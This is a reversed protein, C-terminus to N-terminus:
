EQYGQRWWESLDDTMSDTLSRQKKYHNLRELWAMFFKVREERNKCSWNANLKRTIPRTWAMSDFSDILSKVIPFVKLKLGFVHLNKDPLERRVLSVTQHILHDNLEVCLNGIAFFEYEKLFGYERYLRICRLVSEPEKNWGQISLLWNVYDFKETYIIANQVTREINTIDENFWLSKPNYDDCYDPCTALVKADPLFRKVRNHLMVIRYIWNKPYDKVEPDRFIEIGSDVIVSKIGRRFKRIYSLGNQPRNANVLVFPYAVPPLTYFVPRLCILSDKM